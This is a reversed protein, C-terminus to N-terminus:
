GRRPASVVKNNEDVVIRVRNERYELTIISNQPIIRVESINEVKELKKKAEDGTLGVLEPWCNTKDGM